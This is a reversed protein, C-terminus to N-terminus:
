LNRGTEHARLHTYSVPFLRDPTHLRDFDRKVMIRCILQVLEVAERHHIVCVFFTVLKLEISFIWGFNDIGYHSIGVSVVKFYDTNCSKPRTELIYEYPQSTQLPCTISDM